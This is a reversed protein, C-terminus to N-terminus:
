TNNQEFQRTHEEVAEMSHMLEPNENIMHDLHEMTGCQRQANLSITVGMLLAMM